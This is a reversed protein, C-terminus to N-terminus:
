IEELSLFLQEVELEELEEMEVLVQHFVVVVPVRLADLAVVARL